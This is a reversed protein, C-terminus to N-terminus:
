ILVVLQRGLQFVRERRLEDLQLIPLVHEHQNRRLPEYRPHQLLQRHAQDVCGLGWGNEASWNM